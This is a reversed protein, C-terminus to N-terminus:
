FSELQYSGKMVSKYKFRKKKSIGEQDFTEEEMVEEYDTESGEEYKLWFMEM